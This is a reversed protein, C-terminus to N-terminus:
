SSIPSLDSNNCFGDNYNIRHNSLDIKRVPM